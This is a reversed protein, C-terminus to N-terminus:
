SVLDAVVVAGVGLIERCESLPYFFLGYAAMEERRKHWASIRNLAKDYYRM